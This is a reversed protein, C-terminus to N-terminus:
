YLTKKDESLYKTFDLGIKNKSDEIYYHYLVYGAALLLFLFISVKGNNHWWLSVGELCFRKYCENSYEVLDRYDVDKVVFYYHIMDSFCNEKILSVADIYIIEERQNCDFVRKCFSFCLPFFNFVQSHDKDSVINYIKEIIYKDESNKLSIAEETEKYISTGLFVMENIIFLNDKKEQAYRVAEAAINGGDRGGFVIIKLPKDQYQEKSKLQNILEYLREGGRRLSKVSIKNRWVFEYKDVYVNNLNNLQCSPSKKEIEVATDNFFCSPGNNSELIFINITLESCYNEISFLFCHILFFYVFQNKRLM